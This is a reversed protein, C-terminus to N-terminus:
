EGSRFRGLGHLLDVHVRGSCPQGHGHRGREVEVGEGRMEVECSWTV